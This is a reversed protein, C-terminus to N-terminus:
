SREILYRKILPINAFAFVLTLPLVGFTKFAVWADTTQTRWVAENVLALFVFYVAWRRTLIFWAEERLPPFAHGLLPKLLPRGFALGGFLIAAFLGNVVTPKMKIFLDDELALTLGGFILVFIGTVLAITPLRREITWAIALAATMAAMFAATGAFIGARANVLFFVLLPGLDLGLRLLPGIKARRSM